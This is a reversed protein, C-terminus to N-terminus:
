VGLQVFFQAVDGASNELLVKGSQESLHSVFESIADEVQNENEAAAEFSSSELLRHLWYSLLVRQTTGLLEHQTKSQDECALDEVLKANVLLRNYLKLHVFKVLLQLFARIHFANDGLHNLKLVVNELLVWRDVGVFLLFQKM